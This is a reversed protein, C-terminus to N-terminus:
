WIVCKMEPSMKSGVKCQFAKAFDDNNVTAGNIRWQAPSHPDSTLLWEM